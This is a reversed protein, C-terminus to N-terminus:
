QINGRRQDKKARGRARGETAGSTLSSSRALVGVPTPVLWGVVCLGAMEKESVVTERRGGLAKHLTNGTVSVLVHLDVM